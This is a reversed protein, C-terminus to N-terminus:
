LDIVEVKSGASISHGEEPLIVWANATLLPSVMFSAQGSMVRVKIEGSDNIKEAKYFCRLGDPKNVEHILPLLVQSEQHRGTINDLFPMVFFKLGVATSVPNGPVGFFYRLKGQVLFSAFLIPKGPRIACKHFHIEAGLQKLASKVFDHQGMSVAGTSILLDVGDALQKKILRLFDAENDPNSTETVVSCAYDTLSAELYLSTSNRIQGDSLPVTEFPVLEKGTAIIVVRPRRVLPLQAFGLSALALLHQKLVVQGRSLIKQGLTFDEGRRRINQHNQQPQLIKIAQARGQADRSVEVDEIKIVTTFGEPVPAGTMIEVAASPHLKKQTLSDGAAICDSVPWDSIGEAMGRQLQDFDVAFGDMSSNDFGPVNEPSALDEALVRGLCKELPVMEKSLEGRAAETQLITLAQQYSLM